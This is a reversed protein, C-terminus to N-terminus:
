QFPLRSHINSSHCNKSCPPARAVGSTRPPEDETKNTLTNSMRSSIQHNEQQLDLACKKHHKMNQMEYRMEIDDVMKDKPRKNQSKRRRM